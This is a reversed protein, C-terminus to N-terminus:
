ALFLVVGAAAIMGGGVRIGARGNGTLLRDAGFAAGIGTAHLIATALVFGAGYSLGSAFGPMETSHAHGHFIAFAAALAMAAATPLNAGLAVTLGLGIVSAIIAPEVWPLGVAALGLAGGLAMAAVFSAPVLWVARGGLLVALAGVATMALIHDLGSFPHAFGAAMSSTAGVGTHAAASGILMAAFLMNLASIITVRCLMKFEEKHRFMTKADARQM